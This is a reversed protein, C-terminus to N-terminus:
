TKLGEANLSEEDTQFVNLNAEILAQSGTIKCQFSALGNDGQLIREVTVNLREGDKFFGINSNYRRTGLLFGIKVKENSSLAHYGAWAAITQAMYEIGVWAPVQDSPGSFLGNNRVVVTSTAHTEEVENMQDIFVMNGSHPLLSEVPIDCLNM